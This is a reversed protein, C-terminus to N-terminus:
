LIATTKQHHSKDALIRYHRLGWGELLVQIIAILINKEETMLVQDLFNLFPQTKFSNVDVPGTVSSIWLYHLSEDAGMIGYVAREQASEALLGMKAAFCMGCREIFYIETLINHNLKKLINFKKQETTNQFIPVQDLRFYDDQWILEENGLPASSKLEHRDSQKELLNVIKGESLDALNLRTEFPLTQQM